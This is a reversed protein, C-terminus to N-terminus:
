TSGLNRWLPVRPACSPCGRRRSNPAAGSHQGKLPRWTLWPRDRGARVGPNGLRVRERRVASRSRRVRAAVAEDPMTDLLKVEARTWPRDPWRKARAYRALGLAKARRRRQEVAAPSLPVGRTANAWSLHDGTTLATRNETDTRDVGHTGSRSKVARNVPRAPV